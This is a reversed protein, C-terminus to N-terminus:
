RAAAKMAMTSVTIAVAAANVICIGEACSDSATAMTVAVATRAAMTTANAAAMVAAMATVM